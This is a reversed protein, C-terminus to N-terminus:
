CCFNRLVEAFNEGSKQTKV